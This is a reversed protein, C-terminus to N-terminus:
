QRCESAGSLRTPRGAGARARGGFGPCGLTSMGNSKVLQVLVTEHAQLILRHEGRGSHRTGTGARHRWSHHALEEQQEQAVLRFLGQLVNIRTDQLLEEVRPGISVQLRLHDDRGHHFEDIRHVKLHLLHEQRRGRFGMILEVRPIHGPDVLAEKFYILSLYAM